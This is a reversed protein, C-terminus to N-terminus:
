FRMILQLNLDSKTSSNILQTGSAISDKNFYHLLGFRASVQMFDFPKWRCQGVLRLGRHFFSPFAGAYSLQPEYAYFRNDAKTSFVAAFADLSLQKLKEWSFRSSLMYGSQMKSTQSVSLLADGSVWLTMGSLFPSITTLTLKHLEAYQLTGKHRPIDRQKTKYRYRIKYTLRPSPSYTALTSFAFGQSNKATASFTERPFRFYEAYSTFEWSSPLQANMGLTIGTENQIRSGEQMANGHISIFRPSFHRIQGTLLLRSSPSYRVTHTM